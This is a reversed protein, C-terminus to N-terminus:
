MFWLEKKTTSIADAGASFAAIMDKKDSLLGSAILPIDISSHVEKLIKPMVGPLIELFDPRFTEMQKKTNTLALSDIVFTRHGGIMGLSMARKVVPMKTSIIGDAKTNNKLFDAVIEKSSLGSILDAHVIAIRDKEKIRDVIEAINCITGYLIFIIKCDSKFSEELGEDDKVAAIVPSEELLEIIKM